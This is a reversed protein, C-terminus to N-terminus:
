PGEAIRAELTRIEQQQEKIAEILVPVLGAYDVAAADEGNDEYVVVEPIVQGVEEAILGIGHKGDAKWDYSVGRLGEVKELAGEIIKINTKWRKSSPGNLFQTARVNGNVQLVETPNITGIGVNGGSPQLVLPRVTINREISQVYAYEGTSHYGALLSKLTGARYIGFPAFENGAALTESSAVISLKSLPGETGIGVNGTDQRIAMHNAIFSGSDDAQQFTLRDNDFAIRYGRRGASNSTNTFTLAFNPQDGQLHLKNVPTTTGIGVNGNSGVRLRENGGTL